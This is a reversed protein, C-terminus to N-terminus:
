SLAMAAPALLSLAASVMNQPSRMHVNISGSPWMQLKAVLTASNLGALAGLHPLLFILAMRAGAMFPGIAGIVGNVMQRNEQM